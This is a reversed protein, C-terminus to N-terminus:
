ELKINPKDLKAKVKEKKIDILKDTKITITYGKPSSYTWGQAVWSWEPMNYTKTFQEVFDDASIKEIAFIHDTIVDDFTIRTVKNSSADTSVYGEYSNYRIVAFGREDPPFKATQYGRPEKVKGFIQENGFRYDEAITSTKGISSLQWDKGLLQEMKNRADNVDIGIYLGKIILPKEQAVAANFCFLIVFAIIITIIKKM